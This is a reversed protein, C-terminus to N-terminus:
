QNKSVSVPRLLISNKRYTARMGYAKCLIIVAEDINNMPLAGTFNNPHANGVITMRVGYVDKVQAVVKQLPTNHFSLLGRQWSKASLTDMSRNITLKGSAYDLSAIQGCHLAMTQGSVLSTLAVHGESLMLTAVSQNRRACLDFQTGTVKVQLGRSNVYFPSGSKKVVHFWGEGEFDVSRNKSNFDSTKYRLHSNYNLMVTTGDPLTATAKEGRGTTFTVVNASLDKNQRYLLVTTVILFPILAAASLLSIRMFTSRLISRERGLRIDVRKKIMRVADADATGANDDDMWQAQLDKFLEEDTQNDVQYRLSELEESTITDKIYQKELSKMNMMM